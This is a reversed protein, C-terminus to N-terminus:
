EHLGCERKLGHFRTDELRLCASLPRTSHWDGISVYGEHWLPHYPLDHEVLYRHVDRDRWDVIPHLKLRGHYREAIRRGRRTAAQDRRLGAIWVGPDLEELARRMPEIKNIRNYQELGALEQEWLRGYRAEQWAPSLAPRYVKLNLRLRESLEDVFRYTEPFLHGTDILVVPIDPALRTVLHLCVASQAGFSSSLIADGAFRDLIRAVRERASLPELEANLRSLEDMELREHVRAPLMSM